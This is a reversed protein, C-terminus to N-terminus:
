AGLPRLAALEEKLVKRLSAVTLAPGQPPQMAKRLDANILTQYGIGQAEAQERFFALVDDDLMITIRTKGTAQVVAGRKGETFDYENRM